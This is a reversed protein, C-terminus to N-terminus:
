SESYLTATEALYHLDGLLIEMVVDVFNKSAKYKFFIQSIENACETIEKDTFERVM